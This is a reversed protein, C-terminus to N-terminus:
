TMEGAFAWLFYREIMKLQLGMLFRRRISREQLICKGESSQESM